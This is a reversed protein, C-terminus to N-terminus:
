MKFLKLLKDFYEVRKLYCLTGTDYTEFYGFICRLSMNLNRVNLKALLEECLMVFGKPTM